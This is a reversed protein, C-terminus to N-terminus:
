PSLVGNSSPTKSASGNPDAISLPLESRWREVVAYTQRSMPEYTYTRNASLGTGRLRHHTSEKQTDFDPWEILDPLPTQSWCFERGLSDVTQRSLFGGGYRDVTNTQANFRILDMGREMNPFDYEIHIVIDARLARELPLGLRTRDVLAHQLKPPLTWLRRLIANYYTVRPEGERRYPLGRILPKGQAELWQKEAVGDLCIELYRVNDIGQIIVKCAPNCGAVLAATTRLLKKDGTFVVVRVVPFAVSDIEDLFNTISRAIRSDDPGIGPPLPRKLITELDDSELWGSIFELRVKEEINEELFNKRAAPLIDTKAFDALLPKSARNFYADIDSVKFLRVTDTYYFSSFQDHAESRMRFYATTCARFADGPDSPLIGLRERLYDKIPGGASALESLLKWNQGKFLGQEDAQRRMLVGIPEDGGLAREKAKQDLVMKVDIESMIFGDKRLHSIASGVVFSSPTVEVGLQLLDPPLQVEAQIKLLNKAESPTLEARELLSRYAAEYQLWQKDGMQALRASRTFFADAPKLKNINIEVAEVMIGMIASRSKGRTYFHLASYLSDLNHYPPCGGCGGETRFLFPFSIADEFDFIANALILSMQHYDYTFWSRDTWAAIESLALIKSQLDMEQNSQKRVPSLYKIKVPDLTFAIGSRLNRRSVAEFSAEANPPTLIWGEAYNGVWHSIGTDKWSVKIGNLVPGFGILCPGLSASDTTTHEDDGVVSQIYHLDADQDETILDQFTGSLGLKQCTEDFVKILSGGDGFATHYSDSFDDESQLDWETGIEEALAYATTTCM